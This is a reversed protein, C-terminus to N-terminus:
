FRFTTSGFRLSHSIARDDPDQRSGFSVKIRGEYGAIWSIMLINSDAQILADLGDVVDDYSGPTSKGGLSDRLGDVSLTGVTNEFVEDRSLDATTPSTVLVMDEQAVTEFLVECATPDGDVELAVIKRGPIEQIVAILKDLPM